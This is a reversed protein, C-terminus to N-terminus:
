RNEDAGYVQNGPSVSSSDGENANIAELLGDYLHVNADLTKNFGFEVSAAADYNEIFHEALALSEEGHDCEVNVHDFWPHYDLEFKRFAVQMSKFEELAMLETATIAGATIAPGYMGQKVEVHDGHPHYYDVVERIYAKVGKQLSSEVPKVSDELRDPDGMQKVREIVDRLQGQHCLSYDGNGYENRVNELVFGVAAEPMFAAAKLLLRRLLGAHADYNVLLAVAQRASIPQRDANNLRSFLEHSACPHAFALDKLYSAGTSSGNRESQKSSESCEDTLNNLLM